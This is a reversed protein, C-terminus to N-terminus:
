RAPAKRLTLRYISGFDVMMVEKPTEPACACVSRCRSSRWHRGSRIGRRILWVVSATWYGWRTCSPQTSAAEGREREPMYRLIAYNCVYQENNMATELFTRIRRVASEVCLSSMAMQFDTNETCDTTRVAPDTQLFTQGKDKDDRRRLQHEEKEQLLPVVSFVSSVSFRTSAGRPQDLLGPM